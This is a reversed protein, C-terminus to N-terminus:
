AAFRKGKSKAFAIQSATVFGRCTADPPASYDHMGRPWVGFKSKYKHSAWGRSYGRDETFWLLGSWFRQQEQRTPKRPKTRMQVLEGGVAEIKSQRQPAFGCEPCVHVGAPKLYSCSPCKKPLSVVRERVRQSSGRLSGDDLADHHIDTPFGLRLTTASHDLILADVKGEAPRLARGVIQVFLIESKTPRALVLCRVDWDVGTTLVGVNCVVKVRGDHFARRITDREEKETFGDMYACTVGAAVFEASLKRAHARDVAFCITPRDEGLKLWTAVVDAVLLPSSMVESLEGEHYDGAVTSVKSLDPESPGFVRMPALYGQDILQQMRVPVLLADWTKAMGRAWPTATLGIFILDPREKMWREIVRYTRHAEDVVVITASPMDKRQALTQVSAVQVPRGWDTLIHDGQIVGIGDIGESGFAAVTQDILEIAPVTFVVRNGKRRAGEVIAAAVVTKGAGTPMQLIPHKTGAALARRLMAIGEIQHPRLESNM